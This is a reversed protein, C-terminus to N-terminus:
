MSLSLEHGVDGISKLYQSDRTLSMSPIFHTSLLLQQSLLYDILSYLAVEHPQEFHLLSHDRIRSDFSHLPIIIVRHSARGWAVSHSLLWVASSPSHSYDYSTREFNSTHSSFITTSACSTRTLFWHLEIHMLYPSIRHTRSSLRLTLSPLRPCYHYHSPSSIPPQHRASQSCTPISFPSHTLRYICLQISHTRDALFPHISM